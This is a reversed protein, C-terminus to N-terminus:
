TRTSMHLRHCLRRIDKERYITPTAKSVNVLTMLSERPQRAREKWNESQPTEKHAEYALWDSAQLPRVKRKNASVPVLASDSDIKLRTILVGWDECDQDFIYQISRYDRNHERVWRNAFQIITRAVFPFPTLCQEALCYESNLKKWSPVHIACVWSHLAAHGIIDALGKLLVKREGARSPGAWSAFEGAGPFFESAHFWSLGARALRLRWDISFQNWREQLGLYAAAHVYEDTTTKGSDDCYFTM